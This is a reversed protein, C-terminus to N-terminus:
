NLVERVSLPSSRSASICSCDAQVIVTLLPLNCCTVCCQMALSKSHTHGQLPQICDGPLTTGAVLQRQAAM